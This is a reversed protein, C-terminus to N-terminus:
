KIKELVTAIAAEWPQYAGTIRGIETGDHKIILAFVTAVNEAHALGEPDSKDSDLAVFLLLSDPYGIADLTKFVQPTSHVCTGCWPSAFLLLRIDSHHGLTDRIAKVSSSDPLYEDYGNLGVNEKWAQRTTRGVVFNGASTSDECSQLFSFALFLAIILGTKTGFKM